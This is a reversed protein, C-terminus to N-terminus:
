KFRAALKEALLDLTGEYITRVNIKDNAIVGEPSVVVGKSEFFKKGLSNTVTGGGGNMLYPHNPLVKDLEALMPVRKETFQKINWDGLTTIFSGAPVTKAKAQLMAQV